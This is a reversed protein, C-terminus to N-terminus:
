TDGVTPKYNWAFLNILVFFKFVVGAVFALSVERFADARM